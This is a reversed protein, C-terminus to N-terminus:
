QSIPQVPIFSLALLAIFCGPSSVVYKSSGTM